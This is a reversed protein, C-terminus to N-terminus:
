GALRKRGKIGRDEFLHDLLQDLTIRGRGTEFKWYEWGNTDSKGTIKKAATSPAYESIGYLIKCHGRGTRGKEDFSFVATAEDRTGDRRLHFVPVVAIDKKCYQCRFYIVEM